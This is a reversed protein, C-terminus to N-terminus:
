ASCVKEEDGGFLTLFSDQTGTAGKIGRFKMNDHFHELQKFAMLLEQAWLAARKGVTVLSATQYHTRGVTVHSKERDAFTAM